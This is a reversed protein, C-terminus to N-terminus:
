ETRTVEVTLSGAAAGLGGSSINTRLFLTGVKEPKITSGRGIKLPAALPSEGSPVVDPRVAGLLMGLPKGHVYHISVGEPESWWFQSSKGVQYRGSATLRYSKGAELKLGTNQWGQDAAITVNSIPYSEQGGVLGTINCSLHEIDVATQIHLM